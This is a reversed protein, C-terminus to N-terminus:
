IPKIQFTLKKGDLTILFRNLVNRGVLVNTRETAVCRVLPVEYGEIALNVYFVHRQSFSGDYGRTWVSSRQRLSLQRVVDLPIVTLDAGTDVKGQLMGSNASSIPHGLIVEAIPAPPDFNRDYARV